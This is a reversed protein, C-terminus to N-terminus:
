TVSEQNGSLNHDPPILDLGLVPEASLPFDAQHERGRDRQDEGLKCKCVSEWIFLILFFFFVTYELSGNYINRLEKVTACLSLYTQGQDM